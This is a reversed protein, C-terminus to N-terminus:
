NYLSRISHMHIYRAVFDNDKMQAEADGKERMKEQESFRRAQDVPDNLESYGNGNESGAIIVQYREVFEPRKEM